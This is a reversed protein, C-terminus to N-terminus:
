HISKFKQDVMGWQTLFNPDRRMEKITPIPNNLFADLQPSNDFKRGLKIMEAKTQQMIEPTSITNGASSLLQPSISQAKSSLHGSVALVLLIFQLLSCYFKNADIM